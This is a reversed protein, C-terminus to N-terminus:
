HRDANRDANEHARLRLAAEVWTDSPALPIGLLSSARALTEVDQDSKGFDPLVFDIQADDAAWIGRKPPAGGRVITRIVAFIRQIEDDLTAAVADSAFGVRDEAAAEHLFALAEEPTKPGSM